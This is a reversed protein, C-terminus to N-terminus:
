KLTVLVSDVLIVATTATVPAPPPGDADPAGGDTADGAGSDAAVVTDGAGADVAVDVAVDPHADSADGGSIADVGADAVADGTADTGGDVPIADCAGGTTMQLGMQTTMSFDSGANDLDYTLTVWSGKVLAVPTSTTTQYNNAGQVFSVYIDATIPCGNKLNGGSVLKVKATVVYGRWDYKAPVMSFAQFDIRDGESKFAVTGKLSGSTTKNDVDNTGDWALTSTKALNAPDDAGPTSGFRSYNWMMSTTDFLYSLNQSGDPMFPPPAEIVVDPAADPNAGATGTAGAAADAGATGAGATGAGATGDGATGAGATGAGATGSGATGSGATGTHGAGGDPKKTTGGGGCGQGLSIVAFSAFVLGVLSYRKLM